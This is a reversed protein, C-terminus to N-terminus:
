RETVSCWNGSSDRLTAETGWPRTAPESLFTVGRESLLLYTGRCGSTEVAPAPARPAGSGM